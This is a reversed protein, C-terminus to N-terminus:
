GNVLNYWDMKYAFMAEDEEWPGGRRLAMPDTSAYNLGWVTTVASAYGAERLVDQNWDAFDEARGSPYAFHRVPAQAEAEIRRKCEGIEWRAGDPTLKSVFPHTVTHGGFEIGRRRMERVQGWNLMKDRREDCPADLERLIRQLASQRDTDSMRRLLAFIGDNAQLREGVSRLWFRRPVDLELDLSECATHKLAGALVEFWLPERSDLSGTTLFVTANVGYRELIPLANSYNDQYGDDFTVTVCTEPTGDHLHEILEQLTVVKYHKAVFRIQSEFVSLPTSPFFPDNEDNVRHYYLIRGSPRRRTSVKLRGGARAVEYRDRVLRAASPLGLHFYSKAILRRTSSPPAAADASEGRTQALLRERRRDLLRQPVVTKVASKTRDVWAPGYCFLRNAASPAAVVVRLSEKVHAGWDTKHRGVGALSDYERIGSKLFERITWGRLAVGVNWHESAPEYGEQLHLYTGDYVFGYQAALVRGQWELFSLRLAGAALLRPSLAEYFDRKQTWGFVGPQGDANWRRTHLDYLAPLLRELDAATECFGFRVAARSELNRLVSRVKTRFRPRLTGLFEDWTSPLTMTACPVPEQTWFANTALQRLLPVHPSTAPIDNLRLVVGRALDRELHRFFATLVPAEFGREVIFDLYDSDASGDGIFALTRYTRGLRRFPQRRLPAIGRVDGADDRAVLVNLEGDTGYAQWWSSLWEWTLFTTGAASAELLRNWVPALRQWAAADRVETVTM